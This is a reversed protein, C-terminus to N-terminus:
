FVDPRWCIPCCTKTRLRWNDVCIFCFTNGCAVVTGINFEGDCIGCREAMNNARNPPTNVALVEGEEDDNEFVKKTFIVFLRQRGGPKMRTWIEDLQEQPPERNQFGVLTVGPHIHIHQPFLWELAVMTDVHAYIIVHPTTVVKKLREENYPTIEIVSPGGDRLVLEMPRQVYVDLVVRRSERRNGGRHQGAIVYCEEPVVEINESRTPRNFELRYNFM